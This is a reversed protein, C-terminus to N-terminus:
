AEVVAKLAENVERMAASQDPISRGLTAAMMGGFELRQAVRTGSGGAPTLTFTHKAKVLSSPMGGSSTLVLKQGPQFEAVTVPSRRPEKNRYMTLTVGRAFAGDVKVVEPNWTPYRAGDILTAWITDPDAAITIEDTFVKMRWGKQTTILSHGDVPYKGSLILIQRTLHILIQSPHGM